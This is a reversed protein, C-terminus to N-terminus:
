RVLWRQGTIPDYMESIMARNAKKKAAEAAAKAAAKATAAAIQANKEEEQREKREALLRAAEEEALQIAERSANAARLREANMRAAEEAIVARSRAREIVLQLEDREEAISKREDALEQALKLAENDAAKKERELLDAIIAQRSSDTILQEREAVLQKQEVRLSSLGSLTEVVNIAVTGATTLLALTVPVVLALYGPKQHWPESMVMIERALKRRELTDIDLEELKSLDLKELTM